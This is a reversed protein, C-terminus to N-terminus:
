LGLIGGKHNEQWVRPRAFRKPHTTHNSAAKEVRHNAVIPDNAGIGQVVVTILSRLSTFIIKGSVISLTTPFVLFLGSVSNALSLLARKRIPVFEKSQRSSPRCSGFVSVMLGRKMFISLKM